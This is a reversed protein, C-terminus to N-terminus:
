TLVYGLAPRGFGSNGVPKGSVGSDNAGCNLSHACFPQSLMTPPQQPVVGDCMLAIASATFFKGGRLTGVTSGYKRRLPSSANVTRGCVFKRLMPSRVFTAPEGLNACSM